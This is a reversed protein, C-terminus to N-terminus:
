FGLEDCRYTALMQAYAAKAVAYDAADPISVYAPRVSPCM